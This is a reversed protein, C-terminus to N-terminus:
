IKKLFSFSFHFVDFDNCKEHHSKNYNKCAECRTFCKLLDGADILDGSDLRFLRYMLVAILVALALAALKLGAVGAKVMCPALLDCKACLRSTCLVTVVKYGTGYTAVLSLSRDETKAVVVSVLLGEYNCTGTLLLTRDGLDTGTARLAINCLSGHVGVGVDCVTISRGTKIVTHVGTHLTGITTLHPAVLSAGLLYSKLLNGNGCGTVLADYVVLSCLCATVLITVDLVPDAHITSECPKILCASKVSVNLRYNKRVGSLDYVNISYLGATVLVTVNSVGVTGLAEICPSNVFLAVLHGCGELINNNKVGSLDDVNSSYLSVAVLVTVNSVGVTCLAFVCPSNVLLTVLHGGGELINNNKVGSLDYVNSSCLGATM